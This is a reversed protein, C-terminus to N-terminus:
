GTAKRWDDLIDALTQELPIRPVWGTTLRLKRPDARTVATDAKRGPETKQRVGVKVRAMALLRDPAAQVPAPAPREGSMRYWGVYAGIALVAGLLVVVGAPM